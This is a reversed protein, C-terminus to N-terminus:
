RGSTPARGPALALVSETFEAAIAPWAFRQEVLARGAAAMSTALEDDRLVRVVAAAFDAPQDAILAHVGPRLDLGELGISTGVVPRGAALAELAKLRSGSGVRIPVVAVRAGQLYPAVTAVDPHVTVGALEGLARVEGVPRAGVLDVEASPEEIRVLPLVQRCFWVAADVNPVTYLAGTFVIRRGSPLPTLQFRETDTGNPVVTVPASGSLALADEDTCTIVADFASAARREFAAAVRADRDLLWRQRRHPMVLAQYAAMRSPLNHFTLVWRAPPRYRRAPWARRDRLPALGAYEILVVDAGGVGGAVALAPALARRAPRFGRVEIPQRGVALAALDSLRRWMRHRDRWQAPGPSVEVLRDVAARVDPDTVPGPCILEVKAQSALSLLLYAQRVQGGGGARDPPFPTVWVVRVM